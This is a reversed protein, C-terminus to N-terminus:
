AEVVVPEEEFAGEETYRWAGLWPEGDDGDLAVILYVHGPWSARDLDTESPGRPGRPHSHYFGVLDIGDADLAKFAELQDAPDITYRWEPREDANRCPLVRDVRWDGAREGQGGNTGDAAPEKDPVKGGLVGCAEEPRARQAEEVLRDRADGTLHLM